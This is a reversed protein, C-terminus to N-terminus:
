RSGGRSRSRRAPAVARQQGDLARQLQAAETPDLHDLFAVLTASRDTSAALAEGMLSATYQERGMTPTYRYARGDPTRSVFGKRHLNDIVTQVTTYALPRRASVQELVERVTVPAPAEWIRNM